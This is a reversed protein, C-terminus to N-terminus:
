KDEEDEKEEEEKIRKRAKKYRIAMVIQWVVWVLLYPPVFFMLLLGVVDKKDIGVSAFYAINIAISVLLLWSLVIIAVIM